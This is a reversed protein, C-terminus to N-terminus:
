SGSLEEVVTLDRNAYQDHWWEERIVVRLCYRVTTEGGNPSWVRRDLEEPTIGEIIAAVREMRERRVVLVEDLTPRADLDFVGPQVDDLPDNPRGLPHFPHPDAMVPGSIWRDTACVLHRLTELYSFEGEVKDDLCDPPLARARDLTVAAFRQVTQWAVRMGAPDTPRLLLREPHRRDLEAEVHDTVDVGNVTLGGVNGSIEVDSLLADTIKVGHFIVGKFTAGTFDAEAFREHRHDEV